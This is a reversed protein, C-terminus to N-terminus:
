KAELDFHFSFYFISQNPKANKLSDLSYRVQPDSPALKKAKELWFKTNHPDKKINWEIAARYYPGKPNEPFNKMFDNLMSLTKENDFNKEIFKKVILMEEVEPDSRLTGISDLTNQFEEELNDGYQFGKAFLHILKAKQVGYLSPDKSIIEELLILNKDLIEKPLSPNATFNFMIKNALITEDLDRPDIDDPYKM